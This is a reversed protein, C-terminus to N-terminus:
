GATCDAKVHLRSSYVGYRWIGWCTELAHKYIMRVTPLEKEFSALMAVGDDFCVHEIDTRVININNSIQVQDFRM